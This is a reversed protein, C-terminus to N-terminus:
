ESVIVDHYTLKNNKSSVWKEPASPPYEKTEQPHALIEKNDPLIYEQFYKNNGSM